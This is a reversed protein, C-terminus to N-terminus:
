LINCLRVIKLRGRNPAGFGGLLDPPDGAPGVFHSRLHRAHDMKVIADDSANAQQRTEGAPHSAAASSDTWHPSIERRNGASLAEGYIVRPSDGDSLRHAGIRWRKHAGLRRLSRFPVHCISPPRMCPSPPREYNRRTM